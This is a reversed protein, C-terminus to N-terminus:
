RTMGGMAGNQRVPTEQPRRAKRRGCAKGVRLAYISFPKFAFSERMAGAPMVAYQKIEL